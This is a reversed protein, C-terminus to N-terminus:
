LWGGSATRLEGVRYTFDIGGITILIKTIKALTVTTKERREAAGGEKNHESEPM